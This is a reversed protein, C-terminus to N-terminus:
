FSPPKEACTINGGGHDVCTGSCCDPGHVCPSGGTFCDPVAPNKAAMAPLAGLVNAVVALAGLAAWRIRRAM